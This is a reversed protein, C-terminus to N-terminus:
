VHAHIYVYTYISLTQPFLALLINCPPNYQLWINTIPIYINLVYFNRYKRNLRGSGIVVQVRSEWAPGWM